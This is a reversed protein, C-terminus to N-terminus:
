RKNSHKRIFSAKACFVDEGNQNAKATDKNSYLAVAQLKKIENNKLQFLYDDDWDGARQQIDLWVRKVHKLLEDDPQSGYRKMMVNAHYFSGREICVAREIRCKKAGSQKLKRKEYGWEDCELKYFLKQVQASLQEYSLPNRHAHQQYNLVLYFDPQVRLCLEVYAKTIQQSNM